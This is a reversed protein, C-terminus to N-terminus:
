ENTKNESLAERVAIEIKNEYYYPCNFSDYECTCEKGLRTLNRVEKLAERLKENEAKLTEIEKWCSSHKGSTILQRSFKTSDILQNRIKEIEDQLQQNVAKLEKYKDLTFKHNINKNMKIDVDKGCDNCITAMRNEGDERPCITRDFWTYKHKCPKLDSTMTKELIWAM